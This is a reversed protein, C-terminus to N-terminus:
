QYVALINVPVGAGTASNYQNGDATLFSGAKVENGGAALALFRRRKGTDRPLLV